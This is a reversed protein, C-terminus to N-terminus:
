CVFRRICSLRLSFANKQLRPSEVMLCFSITYLATVLDVSTYPSSVIQRLVAALFM